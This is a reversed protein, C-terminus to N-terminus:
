AMVTLLSVKEELPAGLYTSYKFVVVVVVVFVLFLTNM